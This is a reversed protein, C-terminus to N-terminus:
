GCCNGKPKGKFAEVTVSRFDIGQETKWPEDDRKLLHIGDFGAREFAALFLDERFAGSICGSWLTPDDQMSQPVTEDSVIDSIVARGGRRLVRFLEGFLRERDDNRVLNLVCNSVVTDISDDDLPLDQIKGKRFEVNHYGIRNGVEERYKEALALMEDNMDVGIVRGEPGVVQSAIYCIKGGGSGLDLVTDGHKVYRSPDGCGYDRDLIEQPIVELYSADYQVPCCLETERSSAAKSYRSLVSQEVDHREGQM